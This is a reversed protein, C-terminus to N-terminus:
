RAKQAFDTIIGKELGASLSHGAVRKWTQMEVDRSLSVIIIQAKNFLAGDLTASADPTQWFGPLIQKWGWRAFPPQYQVQLKTGADPTEQWLPLRKGGSRVFEEGQTSM